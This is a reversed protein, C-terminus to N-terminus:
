KEPRKLLLTFGLKELQTRAQGLATKDPYPGVWVLTLNRPGSRLSAPLGKEKLAAQVADANTRSTAQV